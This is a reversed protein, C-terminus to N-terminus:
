GTAGVVSQPNHFVDNPDVAAKIERLIPLNSGWYAQQADVLFPDVYGPYARECAEPVSKCVLRNLGDLFDLSTQSVDGFLNLIYTQVWYLVERHAYATANAPVDNIAGAELDVNIFWLLSGKDATDLYHVLEDITSSPMLTDPTFGMSKAYFHTPIGGAINLALEEIAKGTMSLWDDVVTVDGPGNVPFHDKIGLQDFEAETGYFTGTLLITGDMITLLSSFKRSLSSNSVFDQWDKLLQAREATSGMNFRYVYQVATDPAPETRIKFETVIGFGAAAGRVAFFADQNQNESARIISSDALVIEVEEIRDLSTGWQRSTPGLGGITFHGGSGVQPCSGHPMARKGADYLRTTVDELLTGAGMTAVQTSGNM